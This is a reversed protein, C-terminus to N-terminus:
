ELIDNIDKIKNNNNIVIITDMKNIEEEGSPFIVKRGRWIAVILIGEKLPINKIKQNIMTFDERVNFELMEFKDDAFKYISECSSAGSNEIARIYLVIEKTAIKHPTIVTDINSTEIVGELNIHNVKTIIKPVNLLSAFISLVINEEDINNLTVFADCKDLGEEYLINQDSIDGKIILSKPLIESLVNCREENAEIITVMMGMDELIKTLYVATNSGGAIIVKKTKNDLLSSFKLFEMIDKPTGTVNLKDGLQVKTNGRPIIIENNREISCIIIRGDIKKSLNKMTYGILNSKEKVKISIMEIRGKFFMTVDLISPISLINSIHRATLLEPNIIMSLGLEEKLISVSASYEPRRIRAITRKAGLKKGLMCCMANQEDKEMVSILIDTNAIDAEELITYDLANGCIYNLDENNILTEKDNFNIDILTVENEDKVLSKALYEGLKGIGAIIIKM